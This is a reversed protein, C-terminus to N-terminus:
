RGYKGERSKVLYSDLFMIMEDGILNRLDNMIGSNNPLKKIADYNALCENFPLKEDFMYYFIGHGCLCDVDFLVDYIEGMYIADLLDEIMLQSAFHHRALHNVYEEEETKIVELAVDAIDMENLFYYDPSSNIHSLKIINSKSDIISVCIHKIYENISGYKKIIEKKYAERYKLKTKEFSEHFESLYSIIKNKYDDELIPQRLEDFRKVDQDNKEAECMEFIIHSLEHNFILDSVMSIRLFNEIPNFGGAISNSNYIRFEPNQKKYEILKLIDNTTREPNVQYNKKLIKLIYEIIEKDQDNYTELFDKFIDDSVIPSSNRTYSNSIFIKPLIVGHNKFIRIIDDEMMHFQWYDCRQIHHYLEIKKNDDIKDLLYDIIKKGKAYSLLIELKCQMVPKVIDYKIYYYAWEKNYSAFNDMEDSHFGNDLLFEIITKGQYDLLGDDLFERRDFVDYKKQEFSEIYKSATM